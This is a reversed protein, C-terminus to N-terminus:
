TKGNPLSLKRFTNLVLTLAKELERGESDTVSSLLGEFASSLQAIGEEYEKRGAETLSFKAQRRDRPDSVRTVLGAQVLAEVMPSANTKAIGMRRAVDTLSLGSGQHLQGLLRYHTRAPLVTKRDKDEMSRAVSKYIRPAVELLLELTTAAAASRWSSRSKTM